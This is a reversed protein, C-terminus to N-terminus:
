KAGAGNLSNANFVPRNALALIEGTHPNEVIVTGAEAHSDAMARDLEREAVHQINEDITLVVNEGPDPEKEVRGYWRHKADMSILMRGPEGKLQEDFAHEIGGLCIPLACTQVGTVTGDRIGDEAQFFFGISM